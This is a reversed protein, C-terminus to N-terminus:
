AQADGGDIGVFEVHQEFTEEVGFAALRGVDIHIELM